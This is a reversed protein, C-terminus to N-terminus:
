TAIVRYPSGFAEPRGGLEVGPHPVPRPQLVCNSQLRFEILGREQRDVLRIAGQKDAVSGIMHNPAHCGPRLPPDVRERSRTDGPTQIARGQIRLEVIRLPDREVVAAKQPDGVGRVM